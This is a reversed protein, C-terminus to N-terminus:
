GYFDPCAHLSDTFSTQTASKLGPLGLIQQYNRTVLPLTNVARENVLNGLTSHTTLLQSIASVEVTELPAGLELRV